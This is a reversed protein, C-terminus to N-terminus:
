PSPPDSLDPPPQWRMPMFAIGNVMAPEGAQCFGLDRYFPVANLSANVTVETGDSSTPLESLAHHWLARGVGRGQHPPGVFLNFLHSGDRFAIFGVSESGTEALLYRYRGSAMTAVHSPAAMAEWFPGAAAPDVELLSACSRVLSAISAADEAHAPRIRM